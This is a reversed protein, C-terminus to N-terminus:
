KSINWKRQLEVREATGSETNPRSYLSGDELEKMGRVEEKRKEGKRNETTAGNKNSKVEFIQNKPRFRM